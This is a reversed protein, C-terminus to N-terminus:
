IHVGTTPATLIRGCGMDRRCGRAQTKASAGRRRQGAGDNGWNPKIRAGMGDFGAAQRIDSLAM